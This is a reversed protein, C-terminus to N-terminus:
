LVTRKQKFRATSLAENVIDMKQPIKYTEIKGALALRVAARIQASDM